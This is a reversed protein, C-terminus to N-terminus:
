RQGTPRRLLVLAILASAVMLFLSV